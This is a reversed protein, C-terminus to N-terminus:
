KSVQHRELWTPLDQSWCSVMAALQISSLLEAAPMTLHLQDYTFEVVSLKFFYSVYQPQCRLFAALAREVPKRLHPGRLAMM